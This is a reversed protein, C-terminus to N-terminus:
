AGRRDGQHKTESRCACLGYATTILLALVYLALRLPRLARILWRHPCLRLALRRSALAGALARAIVDHRRPALCGTLGVRLHLAAIGVPRVRLWGLLALLILGLYSSPRLARLSRLARLGWLRAVTRLRIDLSRAAISRLAVGLLAVLAVPPHL